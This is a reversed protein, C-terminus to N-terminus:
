RHRWAPRPPSSSCIAAQVAPVAGNVTAVIVAEPPIQHGLATTPNDPRRLRIVGTAADRREMFRGFHATRM